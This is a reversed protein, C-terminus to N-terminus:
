GRRSLVYGANRWILLKDVGKVPQVVLLADLQQRKGPEPAAIVCLLVPPLGQFLRAADM